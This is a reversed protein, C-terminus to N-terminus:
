QVGEAADARSGDVATSRAHRDLGLDRSAQVSIRLLSRLLKAEKYNRALEQQVVQPSPIPFDSAAM